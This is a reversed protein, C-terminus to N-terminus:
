EREMEEPANIGLIKLGNKLVIEINKLLYLKTHIRAASGDLVRYRDDGKAKAYYSQFLRALELLYFSLKHPELSEASSKIVAPLEGLFRALKAEEELDLLDLNVLAPDFIIKEERARRFISCIRAHAYQIYYVPNEPGEKRALELDFDLQANHSRMLFFYRVVDKSIDDVLQKLTEYTATRTSMSIMEGGRILNVLQMLVLDLKDPDYGLAKIAAKMRPVHGAHDAGWVDIIRSIGRDLKDKHYAIDAAFYTYEGSSKRLVRDKEDGFATTKFWVAGESDYVYGKDRLLAITSEVEGRKYLTSEYFYGDFEVGCASMDEKIEALIKKGAYDGCWAVAEDESMKKLAKFNKGAMVERAIDVIYHGQYCNEPFEITEGEEEKVRLYVSLGLTRIQLGADNLYYEKEVKYGAARLINGLADGYIANRGHGVHLPGTPNASVFEVQVREGKGVDIFGYNEAGKMVDDLLDIYRTRKLFFNIFGPGAISINEIIGVKQEIIEKLGEAVDRPKMKLIGALHMAINTAYDGHKEVKPTEIVPDPISELTLSRKKIFEKVSDKVILKLEEEIRMYNDKFIHTMGAFAPIEM